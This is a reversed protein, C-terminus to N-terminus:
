FQNNSSALLNESLADSFSGHLGSWWRLIPKQKTKNKNIFLCDANWLKLSVDLLQKSEAQHSAKAM